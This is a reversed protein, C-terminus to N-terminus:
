FRGLLAPTGFMPMARVAERQILIDALYQQSNTRAQSGAALVRDLISVGQDKVFTDGLVPNTVFFEALHWADLTGTIGSRFKGTVESVHTRDEHWREQYGFVTNDGATLGTKYIEGRLVAQEGLGALSPWYYDYRTKRTWMKNVGNQYSIDSKVNILGIIHGHETAAYSATHQGTATAAAGLAGVTVGSTPATQAVPTVMLPTSGGGIYEPRQLRMDPSVVGFHSRMIETYRTGGRADREQLQQVLFAQRMANITIGTAASLDAYPQNAVDFALTQTNSTYAAVTSVPSGGTTFGSFPVAVGTSGYLGVIPASSGISITPATFKQPWPLASTFYDHGKARRLLPYADGSDPGDGSYQAVASQMNEDRFWENWILNYGRFPLVSVDYAAAIQSSLDEVVLGFYDFLSGVGQIGTSSGWSRQPVTYAISSSPTDQQGMMKVWNSWVLRNPVFFFFTEVKQNDFIPFLPTSMRVYATVNYKMHDGPLIEDCMFPVLYSADFTTKRSWSGNFKSRPVDARQVMASDNQSVLNRSPLVYSM